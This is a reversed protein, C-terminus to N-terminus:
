SSSKTFYEELQRKLRSKEENKNHFWSTSWIRLINWGYRELIKQRWRDRERARLKSHYTAGDCEVGCMFNIDEARKKVAIDIYFGRCGVQASVHYGLSEIYEGVSREFYNAYPLTHSVSDPKIKNEAFDLFAKLVGVGRHNKAKEEPIDAAHMSAVVYCCYKARTILVNIRRHGNFQETPGMNTIRGNRPAYNTSIFIIDREDGQITELNKIFVEDFPHRSQYNLWLSAFEPSNGKLQNIQSVIENKQPLSFTGIGITKDPYNKMAEFVRKAIVAAEKPNHNGKGPTELATFYEGKVYEYKLGEMKDPNPLHAEPLIILNGGYICDNSVQILNSFQSRYHWRLQLRPVNIDMALNLISEWNSISDEEEDDSIYDSESDNIRGLRDTPPMQNIDGAIIAHKARLISGLAYVPKIQSSEDFIVYDFLVRQPCYLAVDSPSMMFIPTLTKILDYHNYMLDRFKSKVKAKNFQSTIKKLDTKSDNKKYIDVAKAHRGLLETRNHKLLAEDQLAFVKIENEINQEILTHQSFEERLLNTLKLYFAYEYVTAWQINPNINLFWGLNARMLEEKKKLYLQASKFSDPDMYNSLSGIYSNCDLSDLNIEVGLSDNLRKQADLILSPKSAKTEVNECLYKFIDPDRLPINQDICQWFIETLRILKNITVWKEKFIDSSRNQSAIDLLDNVSFIHSFISQAQKSLDSICEYIKIIRESIEDIQADDLRKIFYKDKFEKGKQGSFGLFITKAIQREQEYSGLHNIATPNIDLKILLEYQEKLNILIDRAKEFVYKTNKEPPWFNYDELLKFDTPNISFKDWLKQNKDIIKKISKLHEIQDDTPNFLLNHTSLYKQITDIDKQLSNFDPTSVTPVLKVFPFGSNAPKGTHLEQLSELLRKVDGLQVTTCIDEIPLQDLATKHESYIESWSTFSEQLERYRTLIDRAMFGPIVEKLFLDRLEALKNKQKYYQKVDFNSQHVSNSSDYAAQLQDLHLKARSHKLSGSGHMDLVLPTIGASNLRTRVVDVATKKETVFLVSKGTAALDCLLNCITQSKGTGPPGDIVYSRGERSFAVADYQTSDADFALNLDREQSTPERDVATYDESVDEYKESLMKGLFSSYADPNDLDQWKEYDLDNKVAIQLPDYNDILYEIGKKDRNVDMHESARGLLVNPGKAEFERKIFEISESFISDSECKLNDFKDIFIQSPIGLNYQKLIFSLLSENISFGDPSLEITLDQVNAMIPWLFMPAWRYKDGKRGYDESLDYKIFGFALFLSNIGKEEQCIKSKAALERLNKAESPDIPICDGAKYRLASLDSFYASIKHSRSDKRELYVNLLKSRSPDQAIKSQASKLFDKLTKM